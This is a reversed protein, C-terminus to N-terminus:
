DAYAVSLGSFLDLATDIGELGPRVMGDSGDLSGTGIAEFDARSPGGGVIIRARYVVSPQGCVGSNTRTYAANYDYSRNAELMVLYAGPELRAAFGSDHRTVGAPTASSLADPGDARLRSWVPLAEPRGAAPASVWGGEEAKGTVYITGLYAGDETAIWAAVQPYVPLKFVLWSTTTAYAPGPKLELSFRPGAAAPDVAAQGRPAACSAAALAAAACAGLAFWRAPSSVMTKM